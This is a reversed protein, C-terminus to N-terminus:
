ENWKFEANFRMLPMNDGTSPDILFITGDSVVGICYVWGGGNIPISWAKTYENFLVPMLTVYVGDVRAINIMRIADDSYYTGPRTPANNKAWTDLERATKFTRPYAEKRLVENQTRETQLSSNLTSNTAELNFIEKNQKDINAGLLGCFLSGVIFIVLSLVLFVISATEKM